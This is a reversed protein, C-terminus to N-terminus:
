AEAAGKRQWTEFQMPWAHREDAPHTSIEVCQWLEADFEPFRTDGPLDNDIRTLYLRDAMPLAQRYIEGGGIVMLEEVDGCAAIAQELDAFCEVGDASVGSRSLVLNRRKPLARGISEFTKRGMIIPKGETCLRFHRLDAPLHWPMGGRDGIVRDRNMAAILSIVPQSM